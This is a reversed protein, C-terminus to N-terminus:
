GKPEKANKEIMSEARKVLETVEARSMGSDSMRRFLVGVEPNSRLFEEAGRGVRGAAALLRDVDLDLQPALARLVEESPVRRDFEIDNLYSPSREIRQALERLSLGKGVRAGRIVGGLTSDLNKKTMDAVLRVRLPPVTM